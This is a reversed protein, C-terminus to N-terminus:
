KILGHILADDDGAAVAADYAKAAWDPDLGFEKYKAERKDLLDQLHKPLKNKPKYKEKSETVFASFSKM